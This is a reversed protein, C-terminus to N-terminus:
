WWQLSSKGLYEQRNEESISTIKVTVIKVTQYSNCTVHKYNLKNRRSTNWTDKKLTIM